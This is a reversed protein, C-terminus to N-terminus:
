NYPATLEVQINDPDRFMLVYIQFPALDVIEGHPVRKEDLIRVAKELEERNSVTFSVHDLGVRNEDFSDGASARCPSSM